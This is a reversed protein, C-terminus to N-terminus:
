KIREMYILNAEYIAKAIMNFGIDINEGNLASTELVEIFPINPFKEKIEKAYQRLLSMYIEREEKLDNKNGIVLIPINRTKNINWVEELWNSLKSFTAMNTLDCVLIMGSANALFRVRLIEFTEQGAIDWIQLGIEEITRNNNSRIEVEKTAFDAGMTVLYNTTFGQGMYKKRISTKGVRAEGLLLIKYYKSM